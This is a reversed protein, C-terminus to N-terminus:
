RAQTVSRVKQSFMDWSRKPRGRDDFMGLTKLFSGFQNAGSGYYKTFQRVMDDSFDSMFTFNVGIFRNPHAAVFDLVRSFIQGQKDESSGNSSSTPYGVEQLFVPKSGAAHLIRNLDGDATSPDRVMFSPSLAYYTTAFFDTQGCITSLLSGCDDIGDFNTSVSVKAGPVRSRIKGALHAVLKAYADVEGRHQGFYGNIENGVLFYEVRGNLVPVVADILRDARSMMEQSDWSKGSLDSPVSRQNTDVIRLHLIAPIGQSSAESIQYRIDDIKYKQRGTEVENWKPSIYILNIGADVAQRFRSQVASPSFSENAFPNAALSVRVGGSRQSGSAPRPAPQADRRPEEYSAEGRSGGGGPSLSELFFADKGEGFQVFGVGPAFTWYLKNGQKNTEQIEVCDTFTRGMAQVTKRRSLMEMNGIASSWKQHERATTDWYLTENPMPARQGNISLAQVYYRGASTVLELESALWPNDFRLLASSRDARLVELVIPKPLARSRLVWRAGRTLPLYSDSPQATLCFPIVAAAAAALLLQRM